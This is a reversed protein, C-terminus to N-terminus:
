RRIYTPPEFPPAAKGSHAEDNMHGRSENLGPNIIALDKFDSIQSRKGKDEFGADPDTLDDKFAGLSFGGILASKFTL